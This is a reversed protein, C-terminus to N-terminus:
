VHHAHTHLYLAVPRFNFPIM